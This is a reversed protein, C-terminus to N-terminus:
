PHHGSNIIRHDQGLLEDRSYKSIQCFKENVFTIRGRANTIAVISHADLAAQLDQLEKLPSITPPDAPERGPLHGAAASAVELIKLRKMLGSKTIRAHENM